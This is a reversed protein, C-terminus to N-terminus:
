FGKIFDKILEKEAEKLNYKLNKLESLHTIIYDLKEEIKFLRKDMEEFRRELTPSTSNIEYGVKVDDSSVTTYDDSTIPKQCYSKNGDTYNYKCSNCTYDCDSHYSTMTESASVADNDNAKTEIKIRRVSGKKTENNGFISSNRLKTMQESDNRKM